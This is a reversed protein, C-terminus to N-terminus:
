RDSNGQDTTETLHSVLPNYEIISADRLISYELLGWRWIKGPKCRTSCFEERNKAVGDFIKCSAQSPSRQPWMGTELATVNNSPIYATVRWAQIVPVTQGVHPILEHWQFVLDRPHSCPLEGFPSHLVTVLVAFTFETKWKGRDWSLSRICDQSFGPGM